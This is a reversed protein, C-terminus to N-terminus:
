AEELLLLFLEEDQKRNREKRWQEWPIARSAYVVPPVPTRGTQFFLDLLM